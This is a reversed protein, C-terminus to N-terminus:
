AITFTITVVLRDGPSVAISPSVALQNFAAGLPTQGGALNISASVTIDFTAESKWGTCWSGAINPNCGEPLLTNTAAEWTSFSTVTDWIRIRGIWSSCAEFLYPTTSLGTACAAIANRSQDFLFNDGEWVMYLTGDAHYAKIVAHGSIGFTESRDQGYPSAFFFPYAFVGSIFM